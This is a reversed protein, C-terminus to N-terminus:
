TAVGFTAGPYQSTLYALADSVINDIKTQAPGGPNDITRSLETLVGTIPDRVQVTIKAKNPTGAAIHIETLTYTNAM